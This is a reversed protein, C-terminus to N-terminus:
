GVEERHVKICLGQPDVPQVTKKEQYHFSIDLGLVSYPITQGSVKIQVYTVSMHSLMSNM